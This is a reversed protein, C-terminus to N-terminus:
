SNKGDEYLSYDHICDSNYYCEDDFKHDYEHYFQHTRDFQYKRDEDVFEEEKKDLHPFKRKEELHEDLPNYCYKRDHNYIDIEDKHIYKKDM